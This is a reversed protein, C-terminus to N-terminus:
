PRATSKYRVCNLIIGGPKHPSSPTKHMGDGHPTVVTATVGVEQTGRKGYLGTSFNVINSSSKQGQFVHWFPRIELRCDYNLFLNSFPLIHCIDASSLSPSIFLLKGSRYQYHSVATLLHREDHVEEYPTICVGQFM